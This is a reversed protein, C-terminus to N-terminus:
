LWKKRKFWYILGAVIVVGLVVMVPYGYRWHLEPMYTFNMGDGGTLLTLPLFVATVVTFVKMLDNQRISLQSQYAERLHAVSERLAQVSNLYRETRNGLNAFRRAQERQLLGNENEALERFISDLQEYYRRLRLLERRWTVVKELCTDDDRSLVAEEGQVIEGELQDLHDMDGNLLRAFFRYLRQPHSLNQEEELGSFIERARRLGREEECFCLLHERDLYLLFRSDETWDSHVDYWDFAILDFEEFGEFAESQGEHLHRSVREDMYATMEGLRSLPLVVEMLGSGKM